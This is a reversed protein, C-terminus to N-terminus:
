KEGGPSVSERIQSGMNNYYFQKLVKKIISSSLRKAERLGQRKRYENYKLFENSSKEAVDKAVKELFYKLEIAAEISIQNGNCKQKLITKIPKLPLM